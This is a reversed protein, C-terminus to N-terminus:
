DDFIQALADGVSAVHQFQDSSYLPAAGQEPGIGVALQRPYGPTGHIRFQTPQGPLRSEFWNQTEYYDRDLLNDVTLNLDVSRSIRRVLSLDFVTQGSATISPDEGDLRYRNDRMTFHVDHATEALIAAVCIKAM